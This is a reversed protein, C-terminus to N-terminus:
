FREVISWKNMPGQAAAVTLVKAYLGECLVLNYQKTFLPVNPTFLKGLTTAWIIGRGPTSGAVERDRTRRGVVVSGLWRVWVSVRPDKHRCVAGV